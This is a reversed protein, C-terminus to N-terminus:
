QGRQGQMIEQRMAEVGPDEDGQPNDTQDAPGSDAQPKLPEGNIAIPQICAQDGEISVVKARVTMDFTDGIEPTQMNNDNDPQALSDLPVYLTSQAGGDQDQGDQDPQGDQGNDPPGGDSPPGGKGAGIGIVLAPTKM